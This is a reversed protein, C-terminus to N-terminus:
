KIWGLRRGIGLMADSRNMSYFHLGPAEQEILRQCLVAVVEEGFDCLSQVDNQYAELRKRIWRPIEAGCADSFRALQAYNTIPMIGPVIPLTVGIAAVEDRFRFYADANFFYQTVAENAGADCKRKFQQLDQYPTKARPHKEPYAAVVITAQEGWRSRVLRVLDAADALEGMYYSGAPMDGRLAMLHRIGLAYYDDLLEELMAQTASVCTLHPMVPRENEECIRKVLQMTRAQTSGGAGYTVSYYECQFVSLEDRVQALKEGGIETATPFFECSVRVPLKNENM